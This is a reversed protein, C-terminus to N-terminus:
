CESGFGGFGGFGCYECGDDNDAVVSGCEGCVWVSDEAGTAYRDFGRASEIWNMQYGYKQDLEDITM